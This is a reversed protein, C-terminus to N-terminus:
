ANILMRSALGRNRSYAICAKRTRLFLPPLLAAGLGARESLILAAPSVSGPYLWCVISGRTRGGAILTSEFKGRTSRCSAGPAGHARVYFPRWPRVVVGSASLETLRLKKARGEWTVADLNWRTM